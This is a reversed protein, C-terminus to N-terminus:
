LALLGPAAVLAVALLGGLALAAVGGVQRDSLSSRRGLGSPQGVGLRASWGFPSASRAQRAARGGYWPHAMASCRLGRPGTSRATGGPSSRSRRTHLSQPKM